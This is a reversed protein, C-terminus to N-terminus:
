VMPPKKFNQPCPFPPHEKFQFDLCPPHKHDLDRPCPPNRSPFASAFLSIVSSVVTSLLIYSFCPCDYMYEHENVSSFLYLRPQVIPELPSLTSSNRTVFDNAIFALGDHKKLIYSRYIYEYLFQNLSMQSYQKYSWLYFLFPNAWVHELKWLLLCM